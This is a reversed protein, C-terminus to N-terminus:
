QLIFYGELSREIEEKHYKNFRAAWESLEFCLKLRETPTMNLAKLLVEKDTTLKLDKKEM